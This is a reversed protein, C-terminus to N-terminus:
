NENATAKASVPVANLVMANKIGERPSRKLPSTNELWKLARWWTVPEKGTYRPGDPLRDSLQTFAHM